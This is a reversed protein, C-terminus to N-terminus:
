GELPLTVPGRNTAVETSVLGREGPVVVVPLDHPGLWDSLEGADGEVVLRTFGGAVVDHGAQERLVDWRAARDGNRPYDIFFPLHAPGTVSRWGRLTGDAQPVTFDAIELGHRVSVAELDDVLVAWSFLGDRVPAHPASPDVLTLHEVYQPFALPVTWHQTGSHAYFVGPVSGLGVARLAAEAVASDEVLWCVHDVQM